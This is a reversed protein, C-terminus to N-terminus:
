VLQVVPGLELAPARSGSIAAPLLEDAPEDVGAHGLVVDDRGETRGIPMTPELREMVVIGLEGVIQAATGESVPDAPEALKVQLEYGGARVAQDRAAFRDAGAM